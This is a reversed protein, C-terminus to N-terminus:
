FFFIIVNCLSSGVEIAVGAGARQNGLGARWQVLKNEEQDSEPSKEWVSRGM